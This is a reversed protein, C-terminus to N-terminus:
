IPQRLEEVVAGGQDGKGVNGVQEAPDDVDPRDGLEGVLGAGADDDVTDGVRRM